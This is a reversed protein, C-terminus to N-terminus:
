GGATPKIQALLSQTDFLGRVLDIKGRSLWIFDCGPLVVKQGSAQHGMIEGQHTAFLVAPVAFADISTRSIPLVEFVLDPFAAFMSRAYDAIAQGRLAHQTASDQYSGGVNFLAMIAAPVHADWAAFYSKITEEEVSM